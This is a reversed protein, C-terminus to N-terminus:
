IFYKTFVSDIFLKLVSAKKCVQFGIASEPKGSDGIM